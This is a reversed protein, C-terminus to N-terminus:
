TFLMKWKCTIKIIYSIVLFLNIFWMRSKFMFLSLCLLYRSTYLYALNKEEESVKQFFFSFPVLKLSRLTNVYCGGKLNNNKLFIIVFPYCSYMMM